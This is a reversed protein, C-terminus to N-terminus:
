IAKTITFVGWYFLLLDVQLEPATESLAKCFDSLVLFNVSLSRLKPMNFAGKALQESATPGLNVSEFRLREIQHSLFPLIITSKAQIYTLM